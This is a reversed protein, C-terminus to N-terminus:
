QEEQYLCCPATPQALAQTPNKWTPLQQRERRQLQRRVVLQRLGYLAALHARRPLLAKARTPWPNKELVPRSELVWPTM